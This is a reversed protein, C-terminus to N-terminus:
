LLPHASLSEKTVCAGWKFFIYLKRTMSQTSEILFRQDVGQDQRSYDTTTCWGRKIRWCVSCHTSPTCCCRARSVMRPRGELSKWPWFRCIIYKINVIKFVVFYFLLKTKCKVLHLLIHKYWYAKLQLNLILTRLKFRDVIKHLLQCNIKIKLIYSLINTMKILNTHARSWIDQNMSNRLWDTLENVLSFSFVLAQHKTYKFKLVRVKLTYFDDTKEKRALCQVISRVPSSGLRPGAFYWILSSFILVYVHIYMSVLFYRWRYCISIFIASYFQQYIDCFVAVHFNCKIFLGQLKTIMFKVDIKLRGDLRFYHSQILKTIEASVNNEQIEEGSDRLM